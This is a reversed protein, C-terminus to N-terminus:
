ECEGGDCWMQVLQHAGAFALGVGQTGDPLTNTEVGNVYPQSVIGWTTYTLWINYVQEGFRRNVAEAAERRAAEDPNSKIIELNEDIVDDKFRGFNLAQQGIPTSSVSHWWLRQQDPDNGGHNRWSFAEFTGFLAVGYYEGQEMPTITTKVADGFAENWMSVILTNSEVNFPDNTTDFAFEISDTGAEALCTEMEAQAADVDYSPYGSDELYGMSGEPFPGNSPRVIGAGREEALREQDIAFALARRCSLILLPSDANTGEPDIEAGEAVNLMIHGTEGFRDSSVTEFDDDDQFRAITDANATHMVDFEGSRVGNSRSDIDVAVVAEIADLYPLDEGTIGNPGRWYDENRVARFSNGNGPTYSEFVFAGLGVPAAPDGDAPTAALEADYVPSDPTRQPVDALSALWEQSFMYGCPAYTLYQPLAVWPGGLTTIVVDQGSATVNEITSFATSTLPSARCADLNFKVVEGTLPTGDHFSIGERIHLTWETYDANNEVSEVLLPVAEGDESVAFLSDSVAALPIYGGTAYLASYPAWPNATDAELGYVLTGGKVPEGEATAPGDAPDTADTAPTGDTADTGDTGETVETADTADTAATTESSAGGETGSTVTTTDDDSCAAAFLMFVSLMAVM